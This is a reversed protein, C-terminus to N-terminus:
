KKRKLLVVAMVAVIAVVIIGILLGNSNSETEDAAEDTAPTTEDDEVTPEESETPPATEATEEEVAEKPANVEFGYSEQMIHGDLGIIEWSVTYTGNAIPESFTAVLESENVTIDSAEIVEGESNEIQLSANDEIVTDFNLQITDISETVTAGDEPNSSDLHTHAFATNASIFLFAAVFLLMSLKKM